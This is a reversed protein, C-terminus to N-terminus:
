KRCLEQLAKTYDDEKIQAYHWLNDREMFPVGKGKVTNAIMATPMKNTTDASIIKQIEDFNHGDIEDVEFRFERWKNTISRIDLIASTEGMGCLENNDVIVVLNDLNHHSAILAAEWTTGIHMEGDSMLCYVIGNEGKIKKALALGVAGPFGLGMSGGAIVIDSHVPEALGIFPSQVTRTGSCDTCVAEEIKDCRGCVRHQCFSNLDEENLRGKRWLFYYLSAAAWGKSLVFRDRDLNIHEFLVTLIDICSFNSGIHSTQAKYILALVKRRADLAIEEYNLM